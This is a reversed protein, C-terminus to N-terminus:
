RKVNSGRLTVIVGHNSRKGAIFSFLKKVASKRGPQRLIGLSGCLAFQFLKMAGRTKIEETHRRSVAEFRQGTITDPLPAYSDVVLPADTEAPLVAVGM